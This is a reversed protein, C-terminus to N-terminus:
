EGTLALHGMYTIRCIYHRGIKETKKCEVYTKGRLRLNESTVNFIHLGYM